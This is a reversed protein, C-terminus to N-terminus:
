ANWGFAEGILALVVGRLGEIGGGSQLGVVVDLDGGEEVVGEVGGKGDFAGVVPPVVEGVIHREVFQYGDGVIGDGVAIGDAPVAIDAFGAEALVGAVSEAYERGGVHCSGVEFAAVEGMPGSHCGFFYEVFGGGAGSGLPPDGRLFALQAPVIVFGVVVM